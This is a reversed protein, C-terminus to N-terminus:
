QVGDVDDGKQEEQGKQSELEEAVEEMLESFMEHVEESVVNKGDYSLESVTKPVNWKPEYRIRMDPKPAIGARTMLRAFETKQLVYMEYESLQEGTIEYCNKIFTVDFLGGFMSLMMNYHSIANDHRGESHLTNLTTFLQHYLASYNIRNEFATPEKLFSSDQADDTKNEM